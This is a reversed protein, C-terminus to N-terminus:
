KNISNISVILLPFYRAWILYVKRTFLDAVFDWIALNSLVTFETVEDTLFM